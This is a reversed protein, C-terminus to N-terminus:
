MHISTSRQPVSFPGHPVSYPRGEERGGEWGGEKVGERWLDRTNYYRSGTFINTFPNQLHSSSISISFPLNEQIKTPSYLIIM